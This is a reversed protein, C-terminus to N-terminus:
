KPLEVLFLVKEELFGVSLNADPSAFQTDTITSIVKNVMEELLIFKNNKFMFEASELFFEKSFKIPILNWYKGYLRGLM